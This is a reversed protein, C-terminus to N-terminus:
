ETIIYANVIEGYFAIHHDRNSGPFSSDVSQPYYRALISDPINGLEQDQTYLVRCELTLPLEKIGPVSIELPEELTLNLARIKDVDRGSKTGCFSLIKGDIPGVPVNVTFEKNRRLMERTFRSERVLAIFVPKGWEVGIMGWGITMTNIVDDCGTTLLIGKSLASCIQGAYELANIKQKM